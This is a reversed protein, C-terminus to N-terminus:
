NSKKKSRRSELPKVEEFAFRKKMKKILREDDTEYEGNEDFRFHRKKDRDYVTMNPTSFFKM